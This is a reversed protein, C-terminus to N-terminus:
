ARGDSGGKESPGASSEQPAGADAAAEAKEAAAEAKEAAAAEEAKKKAEIEKREQALIQRNWLMISIAIVIIADPLNKDIFAPLFQGFKMRALGFLVLIIVLAFLAISFQKKTPKIM